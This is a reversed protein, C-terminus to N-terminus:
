FKEPAAPYSAALKYARYQLLRAFLLWAVFTVQLKLLVCGPKLGDTLFSAELSGYAAPHAILVM